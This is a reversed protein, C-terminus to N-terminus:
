LRRRLWVGQVLHWGEGRPDQQMEPTDRCIECHQGRKARFFRTIGFILAALTGWIAAQTAAYDFSHGKLLQVVFIIAFAGLLVTLFRKVWFGTGL